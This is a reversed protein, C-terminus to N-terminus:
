DKGAIIDKDTSDTKDTDFFILFKRLVGVLVVGGLRGLVAVALRVQGVLEFV